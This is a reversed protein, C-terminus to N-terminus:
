PQSHHLHCKTTRIGDTLGVVTDCAGAVGDLVYM